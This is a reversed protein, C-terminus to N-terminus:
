NPQLVYERVKSVSSPQKISNNKLVEFNYDLIARMSEFWEIKKSYSMNKIIQIQKIIADLREWSDLEDYSEDIVGDFTKYGLERIYRLSHKNGYLIFPHRAAIPKFTKESIFCTREAFSAESVISVWSNRTEIHYLDRVFSDASTGKFDQKLTDDMNSRPFMPLLKVMQEYDEDTILKEEYYSNNKFFSNMSNIGDSLLNNKWLAHFLWIRHPRARKQFCNYTLLNSENATKYRIHESVTPLIKLQQTVSDYTFREFQIHPIVCMRESTNNRKCWDAYQTEVSLNGTVYIIQSVPIKYVTCCYHFWYFLWEEHYGEHSQDLLLYAKKSQLDTLLEQDIYFFVSNRNSTMYNKELEAHGAWDWPSHTVGSPVIYSKYKTRNNFSDFTASKSFSYRLTSVLPSATFRNIGSSNVDDCNSFNTLEKKNQFLFIM